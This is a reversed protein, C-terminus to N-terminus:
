AAHSKAERPLYLDLVQGLIGWIRRRNTLALDMDSWDRVVLGYNYQRQRGRKPPENERERAIERAQRAIKQSRSSVLDLKDYVSRWDTDLSSRDEDIPFDYLWPMDRYIRSKWFGRELALRAVPRSSKRWRFVSPTDLLDIIHLLIEPSFKYFPDSTEDVRPEIQTSPEKACSTDRTLSHYYEILDPSSSPSTVLDEIGLQEEWFQGMCENAAGYDLKLSTAYNGKSISKFTEYLVDLDVSKPSLAIRFQDYCDYHLPFAMVEGLDETYTSILTDGKPPFTEGEPARFYVTYDAKAPGTLFAKKYTSANLDWGLIRVDGMWECSEPSVFDTNYPADRDGEYYNPDDPWYVDRVSVGCLACYNGSM